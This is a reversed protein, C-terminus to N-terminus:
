PGCRITVDVAQGKDGPLRDSLRDYIITCPKATPLSVQDGPRMTHWEDDIKFPSSVSSADGVAILVQEDTVYATEDQFIRHKETTPKTLSALDPRTKEANEVRHTDLETSNANSETAYEKSGFVTTGTLQVFSILNIWNPSDLYRWQIHDATSRLEISRGDDGRDGKEGKLGTQSSQGSTKDLQRSLTEIQAELQIIKTQSADFQNKLNSGYISVSGIVGIFGLITAGSGAFQKLKEFPSTASENQM